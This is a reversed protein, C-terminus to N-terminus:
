SSAEFMNMASAWSLSGACALSIVSVQATTSSFRLSATDARAGSVPGSAAGSSFAAASLITVPRAAYSAKVVFTFVSASAPSRV